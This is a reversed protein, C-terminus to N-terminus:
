QPTYHQQAGPFKLVNPFLTLGNPVIRGSRDVITVVGHRDVVAIKGNRLAYRGAPALKGRAGIKSVIFLQQQPSLVAWGGDLMPLGPPEPQPNFAVDVVRAVAAGAGTTCVLALVIALSGFLARM